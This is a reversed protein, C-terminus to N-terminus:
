GAGRAVNQYPKERFAFNEFVKLVFCFVYCKSLPFAFPQRQFLRGCKKRTEKLPLEVHICHSCTVHM